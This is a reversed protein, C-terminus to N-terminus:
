RYCIKCVREPLYCEILNDSTYLHGKPCNNKRASYHTGAKVMDYANDSHNGAYLHNPNVCRKYNCRHLVLPKEKTTIGNMALFALRHSNFTNWTGYGDSNLSGTWIWCSDPNEEPIYVMSWFGDPVIMYMLYM